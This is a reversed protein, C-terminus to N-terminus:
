LLGFEAAHFRGPVREHQQYIHDGNHGRSGEDSEYLFEAGGGLDVDDDYHVHVGDACHHDVHHSADSSDESTAHRSGTLDRVGM